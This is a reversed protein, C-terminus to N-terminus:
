AGSLAEMDQLRDMAFCKGSIGSKRLMGTLTKGPGVEIYHDINEKALANLCQVFRTPLVLQDMLMQRIEEPNQIVKGVANMPVKMETASITMEKISSKLEEVASAMLPTHFAGAVALPVVRKAGQATLQPMVEEVGKRTGGIVTQDPTNYTSIWVDDYKAVIEEIKSADLGLVAAMTGPTEEAAAQMAQGRKAVFILTEEFSIKGAVVLATYEGLSLGAAMQIPLDPFQRMLEMYIAYSVTLIAPQVVSTRTLADSGDTFIAGAVDWSLLDSAQEFIDRVLPSSEYFDSGM